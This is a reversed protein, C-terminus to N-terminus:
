EGVENELLSTIQFCANDIINGMVHDDTAVRVTEAIKKMVELYFGKLELTHMEKNWLDIVMSGRGKADWIGITIAKAEEVEVGENNGWLIREPSNNSDSLIEFNIQTSKLFLIKNRFLSHM